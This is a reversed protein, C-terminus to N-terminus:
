QEQKRLYYVGPVEENPVAWLAYSIGQAKQGRIWTTMVPGGPTIAVSAAQGDTWQFQLAAQDITDAYAAGDLGAIGSFLPVTCLQGGQVPVVPATDPM